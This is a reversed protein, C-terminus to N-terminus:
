SKGYWMVKISLSRPSHSKLNILKLFSIDINYPVQKLNCNSYMIMKLIFYNLYNQAFQEGLVNVLSIFRNHMHNRRIALINIHLALEDAFYLYYYNDQESAQCSEFLSKYNAVIQINCSLLNTNVFFIESNHFSFSAAHTVTLRHGIAFVHVNITHSKPNQLNASSFTNKFICFSIAQSGLSVKEKSHVNTNQISVAKLLLSLSPLLLHRDGLGM